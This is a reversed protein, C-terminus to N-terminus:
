TALKTCYKASSADRVTCSFPYALMASNRFWKKGYLETVPPCSNNASRQCSNFDVAILLVWIVIKTRRRFEGFIVNVHVSSLCAYVTDFSNWVWTWNKFNTPVQTHKTINWGNCRLLYSMSSHVATNFLTQRSKDLFWNTLWHIEFTTPNDVATKNCWSICSSGM